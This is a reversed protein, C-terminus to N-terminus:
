KPRPKVYAEILGSKVFVHAFFRNGRKREMSRSKQDESRL